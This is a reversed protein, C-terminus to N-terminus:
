LPKSYPLSEPTTNVSYSIAEGFVLLEVIRNQRRDKDAVAEM